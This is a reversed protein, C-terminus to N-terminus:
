QAFQWRKVALKKLHSLEWKLRGQIPVLPVLSLVVRTLGHLVKFGLTRPLSARAREGVLSEASSCHSFNPEWLQAWTVMCSWPPFDAKGAPFGKYSSQVSLSIARQNLMYAVAGSLEYFPIESKSRSFTSTRKQGFFQFGIPQNSNSHTSQLVALFETKECTPPVADDELFLVFDQGSHNALQQARLHAMSAGWEGDTLKAGYHMASYLRLVLPIQRRYVRLPEVFRIDLIDQNQGLWSALKPSRLEGKVGIVYVAQRM